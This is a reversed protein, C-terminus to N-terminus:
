PRKKLIIIIMKIVKRNRTRWAMWSLNITGNSFIRKREKKDKEKLYIIVENRSM